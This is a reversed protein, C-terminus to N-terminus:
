REITGGTPKTTVPKGQLLPVLVGKAFATEMPGLHDGGHGYKLWEPDYAMQLLKKYQKADSKAPAKFGSFGAAESYVGDITGFVKTGTSLVLSDGESFLVFARDTVHALAKTLDYGPSLAPAIFLVRKVKVDDPLDELAWAALGAGGSHSTLYIPRGPHARYQETLAKAIKEAQKKNREMAQLAPVGGDHETWDYIEIAAGLQGQKFGDVLTHDVISEGSVGPLHLLYSTSAPQSSAAPPPTATVIGAALAVGVCAMLRYCVTSRVRKRYCGM